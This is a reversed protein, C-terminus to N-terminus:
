PGGPGILDRIRVGRKRAMWRLVIAALVFAGGAFVVAILIAIAKDSM